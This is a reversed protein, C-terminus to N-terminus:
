WPMSVRYYQAPIDTARPDVFQILGNTVALNTAITEWSTPTALNTTAQLLYTVNAVGQTSVVTFGESGIFGALNLPQAFRITVTASSVGGRGDSITYTFQDALDANTAPPTYYIYTTDRDVLAGNASTESLGIITLADGDLDFDNTLLDAIRITFPSDPLRVFADPLAVPVRNVTLMANSSTTASGNSVFVAYAGTESIQVNTLTLFSNTAGSILNTANFTWQYSLDGNGSALVSFTATGGANVMLSQPQMVISPPPNSFTFTMALDDIAVAHDFSPSDADAWRLYFIQGPAVPQAPVYTGGIGTLRNVANNGDLPGEPGSDVPTNFDFQPGMAIFNTGDTGYEMVLDNNVSNTGGVRWQEGTYSITFSIIFSGTDNIFRGETDRETSNSALSGLSRDASGSSGFNYNAGTRSSGTGVTVTTGSIAGTGTGVYWGAPTNTGSPGMSDFNETLTDSTIPILGAISPKLSLTASASIVRGVSNSVLVSYSGVNSSQVNTITFM